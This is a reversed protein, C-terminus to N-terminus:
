LTGGPYVRALLARVDVSSYIPLSGEPAGLIREVAQEIAGQVARLRELAAEDGESLAIFQDAVRDKLALMAGLVLESALEPDRVRFVGEAVGQRIVRAFLPLVWEATIRDISEALSRNARSRMQRVLVVTEPGFDQAKRAVGVRSVTLLKEVADLGPDAVVPAIADVVRRSLGEILDVLMQEKSQFHHYFTGKAIGVADIIAQVPTNEYGRELFLAFATHLIKQRTQLDDHTM